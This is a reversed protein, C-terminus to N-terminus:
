AAGNAERSTGEPQQQQPENPFLAGLGRGLGRRPQDRGVGITYSQIPPSLPSASAEIVGRNQVIQEHMERILRNQEAVVASLQMLERRLLEIAMVAANPTGSPLDLLLSRPAPRQDRFRALKM